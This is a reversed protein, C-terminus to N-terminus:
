SNNEEVFLAMGYKPKHKVVKKPSSAPQSIILTNDIIIPVDPTTLSSIKKKPLLIMEGDVIASKKAQRLPTIKIHKGSPDIRLKHAGSVKIHELQDYSIVAPTVCRQAGTSTTEVRRSSAYFYIGEKKYRPKKITRGRATYKGRVSWLIIGITWMLISKGGLEYRASAWMSALFAVVIVIWKNIFFYNLLPFIAYLAMLFAAVVAGTILQDFSVGFGWLRINGLKYIVHQIKFLSKYSSFPGVRKNSV